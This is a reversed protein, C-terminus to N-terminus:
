RIGRANLAAHYRRANAQHTAFDSAFNHYGSFDEKACMYLYNNPASDLIADITAAEPMRIPGPPLGEHLYTNYPSPTSLHASTIRRLAFNGTAYKVTPDAQLKMGRNLRNIYLRGIKGREDRKATEEEVISAIISVKVPNLGLKRAKDRRTDNWFNNRYSLLRSVIQPATATWYFEYSDPLFASLYSARTFGSEPLISDLAHNLQEPSVALMSSVRETFQPLTRINNFTLKVPTQTGRSLLRAVKWAKEGPSILYAGPRPSRSSHRLIALVRNGFKEGLTSRLSDTAAEAVSAHSGSAELRSAPAVYLMTSQTGSYSLSVYSYLWAAGALLVLAVTAIVILIKRTKNM